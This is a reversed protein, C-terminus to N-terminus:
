KYSGRVTISSSITKEETERMFNGFDEAKKRSEFNGFAITVQFLEKDKKM